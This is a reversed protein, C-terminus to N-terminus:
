KCHPIMATPEARAESSSIPTDGVRAPNAGTIGSREGGRACTRASSRQDMGSREARRSDEKDDALVQGEGRELADLTTRAIEEPSSKPADVNRALDKLGAPGRDAHRERRLRGNARDRIQPRPSAVGGAHALGRAAALALDDDGESTCLPPVRRSLVTGAPAGSRSRGAM